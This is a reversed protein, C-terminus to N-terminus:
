CMPNTQSNRNPRKALLLTRDSRKMQMVIVVSFHVIQIRLKMEDNNSTCDSILANCLNFNEIWAEISFNNACWKQDENAYNKGKKECKRFAKKDRQTRNPFLVELNIAKKELAFGFIVCICCRQSNSKHKEIGEKQTVFFNHLNWARTSFLPLSLKTGYSKLGWFCNKSNKKDRSFILSTPFFRCFFKKLFSNWRTM